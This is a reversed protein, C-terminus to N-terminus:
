FIVIVYAVLVGVVIIGSTLLLNLLVGFQILRAALPNRGLAEVGSKAVKGFYMFGGIVSVSAILFALIYRFTLLSDIRFQTLPTILQINITIRIRGITEISEASFDELAVGLVHGYGTAKGGIGPIITTTIFDGKKIEGNITSVRVPANGSSVITVQRAVGDTTLALAPEASVVGLIAPDFPSQSLQFIGDVLSIIDGDEIDTEEVAVSTGLGGSGVGPLPQVSLPLLQALNFAGKIAAFQNSVFRSSFNSIRKTGTDLMTVLLLISLFFAAFGFQVIPFYFKKPFGLFNTQPLIPSIVIEEWRKKNIDKSEEMADFALYILIILRKLFDSLCLM